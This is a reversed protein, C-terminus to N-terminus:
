RAFLRIVIDKFSILTSLMVILTILIYLVYHQILGQQFRHFWGSTRDIWRGGPLLTRDLVLEDVHTHLSAKAPFLGSLHPAHGHPCLVWHFMRLITQAFSSATYQMRPTPLAYGCDWTPVLPATSQRALFILAALGGGAILAVAMLSVAYLPSLGTLPLAALDLDPCGSAIARDLAPTVLAPALGILACLAALTIMPLRMSLPSERAHSGAPTRPAGLFVVGYVKVFCALALAGIMALVPIVAAAAVSAGTFLAARLLGLYVLLESVFGNLPPLGCIAVAGVLFLAATWPMSKALGGLRDIQRSHAGHVV